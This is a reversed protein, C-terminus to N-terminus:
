SWTAMLGGPRLWPVLVGVTTLPLDQRSMWLSDRNIEGYSEGGDVTLEGHNGYRSM